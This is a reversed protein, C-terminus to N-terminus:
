VREDAIDRVRVFRDAQVVITDRQWLLVYDSDKGSGGAFDRRM